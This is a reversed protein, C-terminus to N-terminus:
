VQTGKKKGKLLGLLYFPAFAGLVIYDTIERKKNMPSPRGGRMGRSMGGYYFKRAIWSLTMRSEPIQHQATTRGVYFVTFGKRIARQCFEADVGGLLTGDKRGLREDFFVERGLLGVNIGMSGGIIRDTERDEPGLDILSYHDAMVNTKMYWSPSKSWHPLIKGGVIACERNLLTHSLTCAWDPALLVDPDTWLLIDTSCLRLAINRAHACGRAPIIHYEFIINESSLSKCLNVTEPHEKQDLVLVRARVGKQAAILELCQHLLEDQENYRTLAITVSIL